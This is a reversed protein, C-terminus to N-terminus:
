TRRNSPNDCRLTESRYRNEYGGTGPRNSADPCNRCLNYKERGGAVLSEIIETHRNSFVSKLSNQYV